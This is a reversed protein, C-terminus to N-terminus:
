SEALSLTLLWEGAIWWIQWWYEDLEYHHSPTQKSYWISALNLFCIVGFFLFCQTQPAIEWNIQMQQYHKDVSVENGMFGVFPAQTRVYFTLVDCSLSNLMSSMPTVTSFIWTHNMKVTYMKVGNWRQKQNYLAKFLISLKFRVIKLRFHEKFVNLEDTMWSFTGIWESCQLHETM